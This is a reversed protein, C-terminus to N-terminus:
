KLDGQKRRDNRAANASLPALVGEVANASPTAAFGHHEDLATSAYRRLL